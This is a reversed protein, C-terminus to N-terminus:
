NDHMMLTIMIIMMMMMVIAAMTLTSHSQSCIHVYYQLIYM